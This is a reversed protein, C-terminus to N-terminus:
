SKKSILGYRLFNALLESLQDLNISSYGKSILHNLIDDTEAERNDLYSLVEFGSDDVLHTDGSQKHYIVYEHAWQKIHMSSIGCPIYWRNSTM